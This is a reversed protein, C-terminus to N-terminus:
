KNDLRSCAYWLLESTLFAHAIGGSRWSHEHRPANLVKATCKDQITKVANGRCIESGTHILDMTKAALRQESADM